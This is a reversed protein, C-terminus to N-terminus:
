SFFIAILFAARKQFEITNMHAVLKGLVGSKIYKLLEQQKLKFVRATLDSRDAASQGIM